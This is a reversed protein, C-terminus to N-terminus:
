DCGDQNARQLATAEVGPEVVMCRDLYPASDLEGDLVLGMITGTNVDSFKGVIRIKIDGIEDAFDFDLAFLQGALPFAGMGRIHVSGGAVLM